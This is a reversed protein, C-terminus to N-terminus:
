KEEEEKPKIDCFEDSYPIFTCCRENNKTSIFVWGGPVRIISNYVDGSYEGLKLNHIKDWM